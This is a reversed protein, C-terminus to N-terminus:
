AIRSKLWLVIGILFSAIFFAPLMNNGDSINKYVEIDLYDGKVLNVELNVKANKDGSYRMECGNTARRIGGTEEPDSAVIEREDIKNGASDLLQVDMELSAWKILSQEEDTGWVFFLYEHGAETDFTEIVRGTQHYRKEFIRFKKKNSTSLIFGAISIAIMLLAIHKKTIM